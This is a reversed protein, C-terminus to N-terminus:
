VGFCCKEGAREGSVGTGAIARRRGVATRAGQAGGGGRAGRFLHVHMQSSRRRLLRARGMDGARGGAATQPHMGVCM